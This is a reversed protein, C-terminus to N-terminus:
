LGMSCGRERRVCFCWGVQGACSFRYDHCYFLIFVSLAIDHGAFFNGVLMFVRGDWVRVARVSKIGSCSMYGLLFSQNSLKM